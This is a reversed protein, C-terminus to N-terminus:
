GNGNDDGEGRIADAIKCIIDEFSEKIFATEYKTKKEPRSYTLACFGCSSHASIDCLEDLEFEEVEGTIDNLLKVTKGEM